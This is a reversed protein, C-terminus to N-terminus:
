PPARGQESDNVSRLHSDLAHLARDAAGKQGTLGVRDDETDVPRRSPVVLTAGPAKSGRSVVGVPVAERAVGCGPGRGSTLGSPSPVSTVPGM